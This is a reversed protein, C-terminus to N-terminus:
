HCLSVAHLALLLYLDLSWLLDDHLVLTGRSLTQARLASGLYEAYAFGLSAPEFRPWTFHGRGKDEDRSSEGAEAARKLTQTDSNDKLVVTIGCRLESM